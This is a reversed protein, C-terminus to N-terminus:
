LLKSATVLIVGAILIAFYTVKLGENIKALFVYNTILVLLTILLVM